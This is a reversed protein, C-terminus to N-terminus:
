SQVAPVDDPHDVYEVVFDRIDIEEGCGLEAINADPYAERIFNSLNCDCAYNGEEFMFTAADEPYGYGFDYSFPYLAGRYVLVMKAVTRKRCMPGDKEQFVVMKKHTNAFVKVATVFDARDKATDFWFDREAGFKSTALGDNEIEGWFNLHYQSKM